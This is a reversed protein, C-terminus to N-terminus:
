KQDTKNMINTSIFSIRGIGPLIYLNRTLICSANPINLLPLGSIDENADHADEDDVSFEALDEADDVFGFFSRYTLRGYTTSNLWESDVVM